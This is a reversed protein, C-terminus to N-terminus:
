LYPKMWRLGERTTTKPKYECAVWDDWGLKDILRFLYPYNIEGTGPEHRGPTDAVQIHGVVPLAERFLATLNGEMIQAHYFDFQMYLNPEGAERIIELADSPRDLFYGPVDVKSNIAEILAKIRNEGLSRAAFRINDVYAKLLEDHATAQPTVGAMVHVRSSGLATAYAIALGISDQFEGRRRPDCAM